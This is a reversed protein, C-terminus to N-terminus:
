DLPRCRDQYFLSVAGCRSILFSHGHRVGNDQHGIMPVTDLRMRSCM